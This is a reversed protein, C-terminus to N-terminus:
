KNLEELSYPNALRFLDQIAKGGPTIGVTKSLLANHDRRSGSKIKTKEHEGQIDYYLETAILGPPVINVISILDKVLKAVPVPNALMQQVGDPTMFQTLDGSVRNLLSLVIKVGAQKSRRKKEDDDGGRIYTFLVAAGLAIILEAFNKRMNYVETETLNGKELAAKYSYLPLLFNQMAQGFNKNLIEGIVVRNFSKYRGEVNSRLRYDYKSKGLRSEM